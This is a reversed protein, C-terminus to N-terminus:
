IPKGNTALDYANIDNLKIQQDYRKIKRNM